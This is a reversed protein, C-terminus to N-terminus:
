SFSMKDYKSFKTLGSFTDFGIIKREFNVPEFISSLQAFTMLGGGFLVGCEIISGPVNLIKKFIEYRALFNTLDQRPVYKAFNQLKEINTGLSSDFYEDLKKLFEFDNPTNFQKEKFRSLDKM